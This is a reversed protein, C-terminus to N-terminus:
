QERALFQDIFKQDSKCLREIAVKVSGGGKEKGLTVEKRDSSVSILNAYIKYKGDSSQWKRIEFFDVPKVTKIKTTGGKRFSAVPDGGVEVTSPLKPLRPRERVGRATASVNKLEPHISEVVRGDIILTSLSGDLFDGFLVTGDSAVWGAVWTFMADDAALNTETFDGREIPEGLIAEVKSYSMGLQIQEFSSRAPSYLSNSASPESPLDCGAFIPFTLLVLAYLQRNMICFNSSLFLFRNLRGFGSYKALSEIVLSFFKM